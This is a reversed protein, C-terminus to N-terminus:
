QRAGTRDFLCRSLDHRAETVIDVVRELRQVEGDVEDRKTRSLSSALVVAIAPKAFSSPQITVFGFNIWRQAGNIPDFMFVAALAAITLVLVLPSYHGLEKFDIFSFALFLLIAGAAWIAQRRMPGFPDLGATELATRTASYIMTIGLAILTVMSVFLVPDSGTAINVKRDERIYLSM